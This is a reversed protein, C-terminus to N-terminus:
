LSRVQQNIFSELAPVDMGLGNFVEIATKGSFYQHLNALGEQGGLRKATEYHQKNLTYNKFKKGIETVALPIDAVEDQNNKREWILFYMFAYAAYSDVSRRNNCLIEIRGGNFKMQAIAFILVCFGIPKFYGENRKFEEKYNYGNGLWQRLVRQAETLIGQYKAAWYQPNDYRMREIGCWDFRFGRQDQANSRVANPNDFSIVRQVPANPFLVRPTESVNGIHVFIDCNNKLRGKEILPFYELGELSRMITAWFGISLPKSFFAGFVNKLQVNVDTFSMYPKAMGKNKKPHLIKRVLNDSFYIEDGKVHFPPEYDKTWEKVATRYVSIFPLDNNQLQKFLEREADNRRSTLRMFLVKSDKRM